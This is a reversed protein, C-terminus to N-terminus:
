RLTTANRVIENNDASLEDATRGARIQDSLSYVKTVDAEDATVAVTQINKDAKMVEAAIMERIRETLEGRYASTFRVGVLATTGTVVVRSESIESIQNINAEINAANNAWDFAGLAGGTSDSTNGANNTTDPMFDASPAATVQAGRDDTGTNGANMCATMMACIAVIMVTMLFLKRNKM